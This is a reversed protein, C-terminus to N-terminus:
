PRRRRNLMFDIVQSPQRELVRSSKHTYIALSEVLAAIFSAAISLSSTSTAGDPLWTLALDAAQAVLSLPSNSLALTHAGHESAYRLVNAIDPSESVACIGVVVWDKDVEGLVVAFGAPDAPLSEAAIGLARLSLSLMKALPESLGQGLVCIRQAEGLMKLVNQALEPSLHSIARNLDNVERRLASILPIETRLPVSHEFRAQLEDRVLDQVEEIFEPYGEFGLRQALRIVTAENIHLKQALQAATMFAAERYNAVIFDALHKQSPTLQAYLSRIKELIM